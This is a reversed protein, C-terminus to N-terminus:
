KNCIKGVFLTPVIQQLFNQQLVVNPFFNPFSMQTHFYEQVSFAPWPLTENKKLENAKVKAGNQNREWKM